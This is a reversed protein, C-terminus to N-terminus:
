ILYREVSKLSGLRLAAEIYTVARATTQMKFSKMKCMLVSGRQLGQTIAM